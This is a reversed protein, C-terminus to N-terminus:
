VETKDNFESLSFSMDTNRHPDQAYQFILFIFWEEYRLMLILNRSNCWKDAM